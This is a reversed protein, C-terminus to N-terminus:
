KCVWEVGDSKAYASKKERNPVSSECIMWPSRFFGAPFRDM